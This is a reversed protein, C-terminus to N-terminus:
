VLRVEQLDVGRAKLAEPSLRPDSGTAIIGTEENSFRNYVHKKRHDGTRWGAPLPGLRPDEVHIDGTQTDMLIDYHKTLDPFYRTVYHLNSPLAGLLAEGEMFGDVYCEGVM